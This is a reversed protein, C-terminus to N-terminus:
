MKFPYSDVIILINNAPHSSIRAVKFMAPLQSLSSQCHASILLTRLPTHLLAAVQMGVVTFSFPIFLSVQTITPTIIEPSQKLVDYKKIALSSLIGLGSMTIFAKGLVLVMVQYM